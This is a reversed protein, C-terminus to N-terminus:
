CAPTRCCRSCPRRQRQGRVSWGREGVSSNYGEPLEMIFDHALRNPRGEHSRANADPKVM